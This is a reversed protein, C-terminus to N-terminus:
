LYYESFQIDESLKKYRAISKETLVFGIAGYEGAFLMMLIISRELMGIFSVANPIGSSEKAKSM